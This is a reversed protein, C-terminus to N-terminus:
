KSLKSLKMEIKQLKQELLSVREELTLKKPAFEPATPYKIEIISAAKPKGMKAERAKSWKQALGPRRYATTRADEFDRAKLTSLVSLVLMVLLFIKKM